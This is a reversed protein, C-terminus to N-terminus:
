LNVFNRILGIGCEGSKEPHFQTGFVKKSNHCFIEHKSSASSAVCVFNEPLHSIVYSHSEYVNCYSEKLIKIPKEIKIKNLGQVYDTKHISGGFTLAIIEAGYCIGLLPIENNFCTRIIRSNVANIQKKYKQRGSLIVKEYSSLIFEEDYKKITHSQEIKDLCLIIDKVYPSGNDVVLVSM